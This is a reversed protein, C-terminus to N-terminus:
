KYVSYMYIYICAYVHMARHRFLLFFSYVEDARRSAIEKEEATASPEKGVVIPQEYVRHFAGRSGVHVYM